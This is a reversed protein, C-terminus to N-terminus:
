QKGLCPEEIERRLAGPDNITEYFDDFYELTSRVTRPRLLRGLSDSYLAYIAEKRENFLAVVSALREAGACYGRYRRTRVDPLHLQPPPVAYSTNVAGSYDFDYAVPLYITDRFFLEANHLAAISWDTNGIMYQFLAFLVHEHADLDQPGAGRAETRTAGVRDALEGPEEVLFAWRTARARDSGSDAYTVRMLRARHSYPTLLNYVRYLQYEQLVYEEYTDTNRCYNVMKPEDAGEFATGRASDRWFNLRLPPFDCNNLRWIGRTRARIPVRVTDGGDDVYSLVAARWPAEDDRDRRFRGLNATLTVTIPATDGWFRAAAAARASDRAASDPAVSDPATSDRVTPAPATTPVGGQALVGAPTAYSLTAVLLATVIAVVPASGIPADKRLAGGERCRIM